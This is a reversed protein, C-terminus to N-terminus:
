RIVRVRLTGSGLDISGGSENQFRVSVTNAASVWATLTIGQLDLSFAALATDGLAAGSCTVTTTAGAGDALSPPDYTASGTLPITSGSAPNNGYLVSGGIGSTSILTTCNAETNGGVTANSVEVRIAIAGNGSGNFANFANGTVTPTTGNIRIGGTTTVSGGNNSLVNNSIITSSATGGSVEQIWWDNGLGLNATTATCFNLLNNTVSNGISAVRVAGAYYMANSSFVNYPGTIDVEYATRNSAFSNGTITNRNGSVVFATTSYANGRFSNGTVTCSQGSLTVQTTTTRNFHNGVVQHATGNLTLFQQNAAAVATDTEFGNARIKCDSSNVGLVMYAAGHCVEIRNGDFDASQCPYSASTSPFSFASKGTAGSYRVHNNRFTSMVVFEGLIASGNIWHFSCDQVSSLAFDYLDLAATVSRTGPTSGSGTPDYFSLGCISGGGHQARSTPAAYRILSGAISAGVIIGSPNIAPDYYQGGMNGILNIPRTSQVNIQSTIVYRGTPFYVTGGTSVLSSIAAQIAATDDTVGDGVAGFRTVSVTERLVTQVDTAVAGAGAPVYAVAAAGLSSPNIPTATVFQLVDGVTAGILLTVVTASTETYDQAVVLRAGNHYVALSQNGPTYATSLNFVTQGSTAIVTQTSFQINVEATTQGESLLKSYVLRRNKDRVTLSYDTTVYVNAPSGNRVAFGGSTRIPQAAPVLYASDWYVTIPNTEPNQNAAGFYLYGNELPSGDVDFYSPYPPNSIVSM